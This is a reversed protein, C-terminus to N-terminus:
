QNQTLDVDLEAPSPLYSDNEATQAPEAPEETPETFVPEEEEASSFSVENDMPEEYESAPSFNMEGESNEEENDKNAEQELRDIEDQLAEGLTPDSVVTSLLSKLVKLKTAKNDIENLQNMIDGVVRIRNSINDRRDLEEQTIPAQMMIQFKNVYNILGKDLLLLNILDTVMQCMTNQIRKIAKGYRSSIISLSKGGDFGAGDSTFGFFQKPVGLSAFLKDRYYELDTLQKPDVDGGIAQASITGQTGHTPVYIINEIPGPNTYDQMSKGTNIASKQEIKEKLRQMFTGVQEKPMDGVDVNLIRVISSRTLRNLLISNELLSLERWIKFTDNLLSQGRKVTYTLGNEDNNYDDNNLFINVEEPVRSSNDELCGHVFDTAEYIDVDTRNLKYKLTNWLMTNAQNYSAQVRIPARVFGATKGMRTLEFMEGPNSVPEVFHVYHDNVDHVMINVDEKLTEKKGELAEAQEKTYRGFNDDVEDFLGETLIKDKKEIEDQKFLKDEVDSKRFLKLYVDGYKVLSYAWKYANKDVNLSELLYSVYKSVNADQSECWMVKGNDNPLVSDEAYCKIVAALTSDQAMTDITQYSQERTQAVTSFSELKALDLSSVETADIITRQLTSETDIGIEPKDMPVSKIKTGPQLKDEAM